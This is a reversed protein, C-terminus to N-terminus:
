ECYDGEGMEPFLVKAVKLPLKNGHDAVAQAEQAHNQGPVAAIYSTWGDIRWVAVALVDSALAVHRHIGEIPHTPATM